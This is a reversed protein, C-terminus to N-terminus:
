WQWKPGLSVQVNDLRLRTLSWQWKPDISVQVRELRSRTSTDVKRFCVVSRFCYFTGLLFSVGSDNRFVFICVDVFAKEGDETSSAASGKGSGKGDKLKVKIAFPAPAELREVLERAQKAFAFPLDGPIVVVETDLPMMLLLGQLAVERLVFLSHSDRYHLVM